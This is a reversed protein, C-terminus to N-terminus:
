HVGAERGGGGSVGVLVRACRLVIATFLLQIDVILVPMDFHQLPTSSVTLCARIFNHNVLPAARPEQASLKPPRCARVKVVEKNVILM